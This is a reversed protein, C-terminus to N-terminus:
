KVVGMSRLFAVADALSDHKGICSFNVFDDGAEFRYVNYTTPDSVGDSGTFISESVIYGESLPIYPGRYIGHHKDSGFYRVNGASFYTNGVRKAHKRLDTITRIEIM